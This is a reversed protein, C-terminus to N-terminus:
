ILELCHTVNHDKLFKGYHIGDKRKNFMTTVAGDMDLFCLKDGDLRWYMENHHHYGGLCHNPLLKVTGIIRKKEKLHTETTSYFTFEKNIFAHANTLGRHCNINKWIKFPQINGRDRCVYHVHWLPGGFVTFKKIEPEHTSFPAKIIPVGAIKAAHHMFNDGPGEVRKCRIDLYRRADQDKLIKEMGPRSTIRLEHDYSYKGIREYLGAEKLIEVEIAPPDNPTFNGNSLYIEQDHGITDLHSMMVAIDTISDDDCAMYWKSDFASLAQYYRGFKPVVHENDVYQIVPDVGSPWGRVLTTEPFVNKLVLMVVKIKTKGVNLLGVEKFDNMRDRNKPFTLALPLAIELDYKHPM